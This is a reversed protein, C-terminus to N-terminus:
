PCFKKSTRGKNGQEASKFYWEVAKTYDQNVGEGNYYCDGLNCQAVSDGQEASKLYWEVAKTYDQNVREGLDGVSM